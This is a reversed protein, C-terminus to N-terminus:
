FKLSELKKILEASPKKNGGDDDDSSDEASSDEASKKRDDGEGLDFDFMLPSQVILDDNDSWDIGEITPVPSTSPPTPKDSGTFEDTSGNTGGNTDSGGNTGSNFIDTGGNTGGNTDSNFEDTGGNDDDSKSEDAGAPPRYNAPRNFRDHDDDRSDEEASKKRDDDRSGEEASKKKDDDAQKKLLEESVKDINVRFAEEESGDDIVDHISAGDRDRFQDLPLLAKHVKRKKNTRARNNNASRARNNNNNRAKNAKRIQRHQKDGIYRNPNARLMEMFDNVLAAIDPDNESDSDFNQIATLVTKNNQLQLQLKRVPFNEDILQLQLLKDYLLNWNIKRKKYRVGYQRLAIISAKCLKIFFDDTINLHRRIDLQTYITRLRALLNRDITGGQQLELWRAKVADMLPKYKRNENNFTPFEWADNYWLENQYNRDQRVTEFVVRWNVANQTGQRNINLEINLLKTAVCIEIFDSWVNRDFRPRRRM